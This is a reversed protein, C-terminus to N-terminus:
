LSLHSSSSPMDDDDDDEAPGDHLYRVDDDTLYVQGNEVTVEVGPLTSGAAPGNECDGECADFASGHKPCVVAGDRTVAGVEERYLRQDEHTCRNVWAEVGDECPLLFVEQEDEVSSKVTFLWSGEERVTELDTLRYRM